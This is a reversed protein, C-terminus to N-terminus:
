RLRRNGGIIEGNAGRTEAPEAVQETQGAKRHICPIILSYQIKQAWKTNKSGSDARSKLPNRAM